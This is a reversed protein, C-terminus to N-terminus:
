DCDPEAEEENEGKKGDSKEEGSKKEGAQGDGAQTSQGSTEAKKPDADAALAFPSSLLSLLLVLPLYRSM